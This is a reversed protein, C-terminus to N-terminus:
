AILYDELFLLHFAPFVNATGHTNKITTLPFKLQRKVAIDAFPDKRTRWTHPKRLEGPGKGQKLYKAGTKRSMGSKMSSM